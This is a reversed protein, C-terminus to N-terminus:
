SPLIEVDATRIYGTGFTGLSGLTVFVRRQHKWKLLTGEVGAFPGSIVRVQKGSLYSPMQTQDILIDDHGSELIRRFSDFQRDPVILYGNRGTPSFAFHDYFPTLGPIKPADHLLRQYNYPTANIFLLGTHVPREQMIVTAKGDVIRCVPQRATPLYPTVNSNELQMIAQYVANARGFTVRAAYWNTPTDAQTPSPVNEVSQGNPVTKQIPPTNTTVGSCTDPNSGSSSPNLQNTKLGTTKYLLVGYMLVYFFRTLAKLIDNGNVLGM